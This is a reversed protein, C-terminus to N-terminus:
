FLYSEVRKPALIHFLWMKLEFKLDRTHNRFNFYILYLLLNPSTDFINRFALFVFLRWFTLWKNQASYIIHLLSPLLPYWVETEGNQHILPKEYDRLNEPTRVLPAGSTSKGLRQQVYDQLQQEESRTRLQNITIM